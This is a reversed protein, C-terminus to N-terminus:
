KQNVIVENEPERREMNFIRSEIDIDLAVDLDYLQSIDIVMDIVNEDYLFKFDDAELEDSIKVIINIMKECISNESTDIAYYPLERKANTIYYTHLKCM